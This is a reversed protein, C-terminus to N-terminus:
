QLKRKITEPVERAQEWLKELAALMQPSPNDIDEDVFEAMVSAVHAGFAATEMFEVASIGLADAEDLIEKPFTM